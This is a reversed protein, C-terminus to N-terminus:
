DPLSFSFTSGKGPESTFWIKGGHIEVFERCLILGLGSGKEGATGSSPKIHSIDFIGKQIEPNIGMGNDTVSIVSENKNKEASVKITGGNPTFKIANSILNRLVAKLMDKDAFVRLDDAAEYKISINKQDANSKLTTLSNNFKDRFVIIEPNFPIKGTHARTWMLLDQLLNFTNRASDDIIRVHNDIQDISYKRLGTKLLELFGLISTFPSKLDHSLIAIFRDKDTNLKELQKNLLGIQRTKISARIQMVTLTFLLISILLGTLLLVFQSKHFISLENKRATFVLTWIRGRFNVQLKQYINPKQIDAPDAERSDYLLSEASIITDDYIELRLPQQTFHAMTSRIGTMLDKMRYPSYVWGRIAARREEVTNIPMGKKYDASYMLVGPQVDDDIEQVLTVRATLMAMNSDRSIEMARRRVPDSFMDYGIAKHNRPNHPELYIISSYIDRKDEPYVKYDPKYDSYVKRFHEEHRALDAPKILLSYGIGQIGPLYKEVNSIRYFGAWENNTVTDSVAFIAKGGRLMLAQEELRTEIRIRLQNCSYEFDQRAANMVNTRNYIVSVVTIALGAFLVGLTILTERLTFGTIVLPSKPSNM